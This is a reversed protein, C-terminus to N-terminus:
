TSVKRRWRGIFVLFLLMLFSYGLGGAGQSTLSDNESNGDTEGSNVTGDNSKSSTDTPKSDTDTATESDDDLLTITSRINGDLIANVPDRLMLEIKKDGGSIMDSAFKTDIRYESRSQGEIFDVRESLMRDESMGVTNYYLMVSVAENLNGSRMLAIDIHPIEESISYFSRAISISSQEIDDDIIRVTSTEQEGFHIKEDTSSLSVYFVKENEYISDDGESIDIFFLIEDVGKPFVAEGSGGFYDTRSVATGDRTSITV